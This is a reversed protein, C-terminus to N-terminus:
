KCKEKKYTQQFFSYFLLLFIFANFISLYMFIKPWQCGPSMMSYGSHLIVLVFQAMQMQTLYKKWWLYPKMTEFTSLAYYTYMVTHIGSNIWPFFGSNGGPAFKLGIWVFLPMCSHHFVHLGSIQRDKKRLIFFFTDFFDVFKTMFFLWGLKIKYLDIFRRSRRDVVECKWSDIGFNTVWCGTTFFWGNIIILSINYLLIFNRMDYAKRNRMFQPGVIKVCYLYASIMLMMNWPGGDMFPLYVVRPDGNKNWIDYYYYKVNDMMQYIFASYQASMKM